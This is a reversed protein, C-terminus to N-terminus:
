AAKKLHQQWYGRWRYSKSPTRSLTASLLDTFHEGDPKRRNTERWAMEDAYAGLYRGAIRHHSGQEARRLRSFFSEANNTDVRVGDEWQVFARNHNIVKVPGFRRLDTWSSAADVFIRVANPTLHNAVIPRGVAENKAVFALVRGGRRRERMTMVGQRKGTLIKRRDEREDAENKPKKYGGFYAIDIEVDGTLRPKPLASIAERFKHQLVFATKYDVGLEHTLELAAHGKAGQIYHALGALIDRLPLKHDEFPTGKTVSFQKLCKKCKFLRRPIVEGSKLKRTSKIPYAGPNACGEHPCIPEGEPWRM